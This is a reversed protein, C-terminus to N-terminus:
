ESGGRPPGSEGSSTVVAVRNPFGLSRYRDSLRGAEAQGFRAPTRIVYVPASGEAQVIRVGHGGGKIQEARQVAERLVYPGEDFTFGGDRTAVPPVPKARLETMVASARAANPFPGVTLTYLGADLRTTTRVTPLGAQKLRQEYEDAEVPMVFPPFELGYRRLAAPTPTPPAKM